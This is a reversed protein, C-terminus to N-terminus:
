KKDNSGPGGQSKTPRLKSAGDVSAKESGKNTKSTYNPVGTFQNDKSM